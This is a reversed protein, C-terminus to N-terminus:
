VYQIYIETKSNLTLLTHITHTEYCSPQSPIMSGRNGHSVFHDGPESVQGVSNVRTLLTGGSAFYINWTCVYMYILLIHMCGYMVLEDIRYKRYLFHVYMCKTCVYLRM